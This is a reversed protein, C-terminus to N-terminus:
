DDDDPEEVDVPWYAGFRARFIPAAMMILSREDPEPLRVADGDWELADEDVFSMELAAPLAARDDPRVQLRGNLALDRVFALAQELTDHAIHPSAHTIQWKGGSTNGSYLARGVEPKANPDLDLRPSGDPTM